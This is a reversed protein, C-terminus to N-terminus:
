LSKTKFFNLKVIIVAYIIYQVTFSLTLTFGISTINVFGQELLLIDRM